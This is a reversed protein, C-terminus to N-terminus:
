VRRNVLPGCMEGEGAGAFPKTKRKMLFLSAGCSTIVCRPAGDTQRKMQLLEAEVGFLDTAM